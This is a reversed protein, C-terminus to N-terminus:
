WPERGGGRARRGGSVPPPWGVALDVVNGRSIFDKFEQLM